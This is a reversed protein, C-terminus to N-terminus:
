VNGLTNIYKIQYINKFILKHRFIRSCMSKILHSQIGIASMKHLISSHKLLPIIYTTVFNLKLVYAAEHNKSKIIKTEIHITPSKGIVM